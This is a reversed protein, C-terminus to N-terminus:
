VHPTAQSTGSLVGYTSDSGIYSSTIQVGPAFISVCSGYNSFYAREDTQSTAGVAIGYPSRAPSVDCADVNENGAASVALLGNTYASSVAADM